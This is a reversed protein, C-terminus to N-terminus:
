GGDACASVLDTLHGSSDKFDCRKSFVTFDDCTSVSGFIVAGQYATAPFGYTAVDAADVACPILFVAKFDDIFDARRKFLVMDDFSSSNTSSKVIVNDFEATDPPGEAPNTLTNNQEDGDGTASNFTAANANVARAKNPGNSILVMIANDTITQINASTDQVTIIGTHPTTSFNIVSFNPASALNIAYTFNRDVIYIIKSGFADEAMETSLGLTVAPVAGYVLDADTNSEFVGSISDCGGGGDVETAYDTDISKVKYLSAPCPLRNNSTLFIGMASYIKDMREKTTSMKANNISGVSVSLVGAVLISIIVIVISLELLSYAKKIKHNQM